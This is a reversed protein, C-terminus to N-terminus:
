IISCSWVFNHYVSAAISSPYYIQVYQLIDILGSLTLTQSYLYMFIVHIFSGIYLQRTSDQSHELKFRIAAPELSDLEM